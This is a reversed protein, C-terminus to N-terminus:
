KLYLQYPRIPWVQSLLINIFSINITCHKTHIYTVSSPATLNFGQLNLIDEPSFLSGQSKKKEKKEEKKKVTIVICKM